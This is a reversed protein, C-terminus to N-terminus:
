KVEVQIQAGEMPYNPGYDLIAAVLYSGKALGKPLALEGKRIGEPLIRFTVPDLKTEEATQLNSIVMYMNCDLIKEGTNKTVVSFRRNGEEDTGDEKFETLKASANDNSRPSQTVFVGISQSVEIGMALDKDAQPAEQEKQLTVYAISWKTESQGAPVNLTVTVDASGNAELEVLAPTFSVWDSCSNPNSGKEQRILNGKEDLSWDSASLTYIAPKNTTNRVTVTQAQNAGPELSFDLRVPSIELGQAFLGTSVLLIVALFTLSQFIRM